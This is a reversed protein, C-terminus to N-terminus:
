QFDDDNHMVRAQRIHKHMHVIVATRMISIANRICTSNVEIDGARLLLLDAFGSLGSKSQTCFLKWGPTLSVAPYECKTRKAFEPRDGSKVSMAFNRDVKVLCM